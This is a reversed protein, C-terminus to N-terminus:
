SLYVKHWDIYLFVFTLLIGFSLTPVNIFNFYFIFINQTQVSTEVKIDNPQNTEEYRLVLPQSSPTLTLIPVGNTLVILFWVPLVSMFFNKSTWTCTVSSLLLSFTKGRCSISSSLFYTSNNDSLSTIVIIVFTFNRIRTKWNMSFFRTNRNVM